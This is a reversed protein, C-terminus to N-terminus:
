SKDDYYFHQAHLKTGIELLGYSYRPQRRKDTPSGPNFLLKGKRMQHYPTHSHGFVIMDVQEAQFAEWAREETTKRVGDGHILAIRYSSLTLIKHRGFRNRIDLGDNNGAIGEVPAIIRLQEYVDLDTWDGAHLILDVGQLGQVLVKPLQKARQPMHTDSIIGVRM